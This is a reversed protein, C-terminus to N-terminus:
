PFKSTKRIKKEFDLYASETKPWFPLELRSKLELKSGSSCGCSKSMKEPFIQLKESFAKLL